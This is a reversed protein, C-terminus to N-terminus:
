RCHDERHHEKRWSLIEGPDARDGQRGRHELRLVGGSGQVIRDGGGPDRWSLHGLAIASSPLNCVRGRRQHWRSARAPGCHIGTPEHDPWPDSRERVNMMDGAVYIDKVLHDNRYPQLTGSARVAGLQGIELGMQNPIDLNARVGTAMIVTGCHYEKGGAMVSEVKEKGKIATIPTGMIFRIGLGECHKQVIAAMDEDIIRPIVNPYREVVTVKKGLNRVAVAMMLGIVGAGVVVVSDTTRLAAKIAKGGNVDKITFVGPLRAGEIPPVFMKGGTALVLSDYPMVTGDALTVTKKDMDVSAVKTRTHVSINRKEKYFEPTHMIISDFDKIVGGIAYIVACPSYAIHEDETFVDIVADPNNERATSAATLGGAGAGIVIIKRSM